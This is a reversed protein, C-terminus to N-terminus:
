RKQRGQQRSDCRRRVAYRLTQEHEEQTKVDVLSPEYVYHQSARRTTDIHINDRFRADNERRHEAEFM